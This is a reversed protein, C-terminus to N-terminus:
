CLTTVPSVIVIGSGSFMRIWPAPGGGIDVSDPVRVQSPGAFLRTNVNLLWQCSLVNIFLTIHIVALTSLFWRYVPVSPSGWTRFLRTGWNLRLKVLVSLAVLLWCIAQGHTTGLQVFVFGRGFATNARSRGTYVAPTRVPQCAVPKVAVDVFGAPVTFKGFMGQAAYVLVAGWNLSRSVEAGAGYTVGGSPWCQYTCIPIVFPVVGVAYRCFM